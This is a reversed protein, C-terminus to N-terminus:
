GMTALVQLDLIEVSISYRELYNKTIELIPHGYAEIIKESNELASALYCLQLPIEIGNLSIVVESFKPPHILLIRM